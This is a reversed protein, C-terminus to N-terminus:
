RGDARGSRSGHVGQLPLFAAAPDRGGARGGADGTEGAAGWCRCRDPAPSPDAAPRGAPPLGPPPHPPPAVPLGGCGPAAPPPPPSSAGRQRPGPRPLHLRANPAPRGAPPAHTQTPGGNNALPGLLPDLPALPNGVLNGNVG